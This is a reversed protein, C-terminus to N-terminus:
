RPSCRPAWVTSTLPRAPHIAPSSRRHPSRRHDPSRAPQQRSGGAVHAIGFDSLAPEGYNTLLINAPKVDRHLIGLRHASELAGAIKVGVRLVDEIPLLGLRKIKAQLSGQRHYQMVLYPYSSATEGVQLVGVINPHGTLKAMAHQERFFRERDEKLQATLVKVAVVRDLEAQNCRFVIGFGGRGIEEADTFGAATLETVVTSGVDRQTPFPDSEM